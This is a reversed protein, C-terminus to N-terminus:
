GVRLLSLTVNATYDNSFGSSVSDYITTPGAPNNCLSNITVVDGSQLNLIPAGYMGGLVEFTIGPSTETNAFFKLSNYVYFPSSNRYVILGISLGSSPSEGFNTVNYTILYYGPITVEFGTQWPLLNVFVIDASSNKSAGTGSFPVATIGYEITESATNTAYAWSTYVNLGTMGTLGTEGNAGTVGTHGTIGTPGTDGTDGTKGNSGTNGQAGTPGTPGTNGTAGDAADTGSEGTLGTAGTAGTPGTPGTAGTAGYLGTVGTPGTVGTQGRDGTPGTVGTPGKPGTPPNVSVGCAEGEIKFKGKVLLDGNVCFKSALINAATVNCDAQVRNAQVWDKVLLNCYIECQNNQGRKVPKITILANKSEIDKIYKEIVQIVAEIKDKDSEGIKADFNSVSNSVANSSIPILSLLEKAIDMSKLCDQSAAAPLKNLAPDALNYFEKLTNIKGLSIKNLDLNVLGNKVLKTEALAITDAVADFIDQPIYVFQESLNPFSNTLTNSIFDDSSGTISVIIKGVECNNQGELSKVNEQDKLNNITELSELIKQNSLNNKSELDELIEQNSLDDQIKLAERSEQSNIQEASKANKINDRSSLVNNPLIYYFNFISLILIKSINKDSLKLM